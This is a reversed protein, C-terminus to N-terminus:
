NEGNLHLDLQSAIWAKARPLTPFPRCQGNGGHRYYLVAHHQKSYRYISAAISRWTSLGAPRLHWVGKRERRWEYMKAVESWNNLGHHSDIEYIDLRAADDRCDGTFENAHMAGCCDCDYYTATPSFLKTPTLSPRFASEPRRMFDTM